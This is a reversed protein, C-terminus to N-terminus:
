LIRQELNNHGKGAKGSSLRAIAIATYSEMGISAAAVCVPNRLTKM